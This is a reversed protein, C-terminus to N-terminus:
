QILGFNLLQNYLNGNHKVKFTKIGAKTGAEVDSDSDGVFFSSEFDANFEAMAKELMLPSPKRCLCNSFNPHHPCVYIKNVIAGFNKLEENMWNHLNEIDELTYIGKAIGSQNSVIAIKYNNKTFYAMAEKVGPNFIFDEKKYIYYLKSNDDIVGDRDFIALKNKTMM